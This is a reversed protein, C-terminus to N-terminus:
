STYMKLVNNVTEFEPTAKDIDVALIPQQLLEGYPENKTSPLESLFPPYLKEIEKLFRIVNTILQPIVYATM